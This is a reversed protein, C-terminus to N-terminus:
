RYFQLIQKKSEYEDQNHNSIWESIIKKYIEDNYIRKGIFFNETTKSFNSKFRFLHDQPDNTLGGGFNVESVTKKQLLEVTKSLLFNTAPVKSYDLNRSSLYYTAISGSIFFLSYSYVVYDKEVKVLIINKGLETYLQKILEKTFYYFTDAGANNMTLYYMEIFNDLDKQDTTESFSYGEKELKRIVNRNTGSYEKTWIEEWSKNLDLVAITRNHINVINKNFKLDRNYKYHYRVFETVCNKSMYSYFLAEAEDFFTQDNCFPGCYGYPSTIDFYNKLDPNDFFLKIYPYIFISNDKKVAFIEFEGKQIKADIKLFKATYYIDLSIGNNLLYDDYSEVNSENFIQILGSM